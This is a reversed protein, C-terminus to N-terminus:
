QCNKIKNQDKRLLKSVQPDKAPSLRMLWSNFDSQTTFREIEKEYLDITM